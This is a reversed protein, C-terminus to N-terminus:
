RCPRFRGMQNPDGREPLRPRLHRLRRVRQRDHSRRPTKTM